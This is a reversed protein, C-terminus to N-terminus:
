HYSSWKWNIYVAFIPIWLTNTGEQLLGAKYATARLLLPSTTNFWWDIQRFKYSFFLFWAQYVFNTSTQMASPNSSRWWRVGAVAVGVAVLTCVVVSVAIVATPPSTSDSTSTTNTSTGDQNGGASTTSAVVTTTASTSSDGGDIVHECLRTGFRFGHLLKLWLLLFWNIRILMPWASRAVNLWVKSCLALQTSLLGLGFRFWFLCSRNYM